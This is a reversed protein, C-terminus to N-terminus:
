EWPMKPKGAAPASDQKQTAAPKPQTVPAPGSAAAPIEQFETIKKVKNTAIDEGESNTFSDEIIQLNMKGGHLDESKALKNPNKVGALVAIRKLRELSIRVAEVNPNVINLNEGLCAGKHEGELIEFAIKLIKGNKNSNDVVETGIITCAYVGAPVFTFPSASEEKVASLDLNLAAM